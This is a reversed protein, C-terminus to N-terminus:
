HQPLHQPLHDLDAGLEFVRIKIGSAALSKVLVHLTHRCDITLLDEAKFIGFAHILEAAGIMFDSLDVQLAQLHPLQSFAKSIITFNLANSSLLRQMEIYSRYASM